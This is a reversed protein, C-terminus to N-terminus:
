WQVSTQGGSCAFIHVESLDPFSLTRPNAFTDEVGIYCKEVSIVLIDGSFVQDGSEQSVEQSYVSSTSYFVKGASKSWPKPKFAANEGLKLEIYM